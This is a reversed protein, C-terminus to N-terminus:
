ATGRVQFPEHDTDSGQTWWPQAALVAGVLGCDWEDDTQWAASPAPAAPEPTAPPVHGAEGLEALLAAVNSYGHGNPCFWRAYPTRGDRHLRGGCLPCPADTPIDKTLRTPALNNPTAM